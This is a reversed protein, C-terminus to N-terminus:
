SSGSRRRWRGPRSPRSRPTAPTASSGPSGRTRTSSTTSRTRRRASRARPRRRDRDAPRARPQRPVLARRRRRDRGHLRRPLRRRRAAEVSRALEGGARSTSSSTSCCRSRARPRLRADARGGRVLQAHRPPRRRARLDRRDFGRELKDVLYAVDAARYTPGGGQEALPHAVRDQDDGYASSRAWLAGDREYTDLRPLLEPLREELVSQRAWSDFHIASASSRRRSRSSCRAPGPRRRARALEEVYEGQYGDEPPEEGRRRAEVSARFREMQRARTTTTTSASSRTRRRVRAAARGLRRLAGNRAAAVTIPGTPNASVM